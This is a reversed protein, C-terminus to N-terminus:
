KKHHHRGWHVVNWLREHVIYLVTSAINSFFLVGLTLDFRKTIFFIILLDSTIILIRFTIAKVISRKLHEHFRAM